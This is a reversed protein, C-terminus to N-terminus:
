RAGGARIAALAAAREEKPRGINEWPDFHPQKPARNRGKAGMFRQAQFRGNAVSIVRKGDSLYPARSM